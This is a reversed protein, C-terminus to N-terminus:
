ALLVLRPEKSWQQEALRECRGRVDESACLLAEGLEGGDIGHREGGALREVAAEFGGHSEITALVEARRKKKAVSDRVLDAASTPRLYRKAEDSFVIVDDTRKAAVESVSKPAPPEVPREIAKPKPGPAAVPVSNGTAGRIARVDDDTLARPTQLSMALAGAKDTMGNGSTFRIVSRLSSIDAIPIANASASWGDPGKTPRELVAVLWLDETPPRVTALYLADDGGLADLAKHTSAYTATGYVSGPKAGACEKDFVKKSVIALVSAM